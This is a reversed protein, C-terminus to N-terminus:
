EIRFAGNCPRLRELGTRVSHSSSRSSITWCRRRHEPRSPKRFLSSVRSVGLFTLFVVFSPSGLGM